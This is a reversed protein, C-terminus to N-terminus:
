ELPTIVGDHNDMDNLGKKCPEETYEKGRIKIEEAETTKTRLCPWGQMFYERSKELLIDKTKGM